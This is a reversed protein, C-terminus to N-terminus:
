ARSPASCRRSPAIPRFATFLTVLAPQSLWLDDFTFLLGRVLRSGEAPTARSRHPRDMQKREMKNRHRCSPRSHDPRHEPTQLAVEKVAGELIQIPKELSRSRAHPAHDRQAVPLMKLAAATYRAAHAVPRARFRRISRPSYQRRVAGAGRRAILDVAPIQAGSDHDRRDARAARRRVSAGRGRPRDRDIAAPAPAPRVGRDACRPDRPSPASTPRPRRSSQHIKTLTEPHARRGEQGDLAAPRGGRLREVRDARQFGGVPRDDRRAGTM